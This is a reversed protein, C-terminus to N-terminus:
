FSELMVSPVSLKETDQHLPYSEQSLILLNHTQICSNKTKQFSLGLKILRIKFEFLFFENSMNQKCNLWFIEFWYYLELIHCLSDMDRYSDVKKMLGDIM